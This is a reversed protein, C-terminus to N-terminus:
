RRRRHGLGLIGDGAGPHRTRPGARSGAGQRCLHRPQHRQDEGPRGSEDWEAVQTRTLVWVWHGDRHRLRIEDEVQWQGAEFADREHTLLKERDDPELMGLWRDLSMPNLEVARYGIIEAWRDSVLTVGTRM